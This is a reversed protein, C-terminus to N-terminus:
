GSEVVKVGQLRSVYGIIIGGFLLFLGPNLFVERLLKLGSPHSTKPVRLPLAKQLETSAPANETAIERVETAPRRLEYGPEDPMNGKRDM